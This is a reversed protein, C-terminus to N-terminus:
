VEGLTHNRTFMDLGFQDDDSNRVDGVNTDYLTLSGKGDAMSSVIVLHDGSVATCHKGCENHTWSHALNYHIRNHAYVTSESCDRRVLSYLNAVFHIM